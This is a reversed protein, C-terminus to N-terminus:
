GDDEESEEEEDEDDKWGVEKKLISLSEEWAEDSLDVDELAREVTEDSLFEIMQLVEVLAAKVEPKM